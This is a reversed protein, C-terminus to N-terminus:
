SEGRMVEYLWARAKTWDRRVTRENIDLVVAIEKETMGGFYHYEVVLALRPSVAELQALADELALIAEAPERAQLIDAEFDVPKLGGGRKAARDARAYDILIRRMAHAAAALIHERSQWGPAKRAALKLYTEHVLATTSLTHDPRERRLHRHAIARLENYVVPLIGDLGPAELSSPGSPTDDGSIDTPRSSRAM